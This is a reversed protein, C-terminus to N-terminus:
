RHLSPTHLYMFADIRAYISLDRGRRTISPRIDYCAKYGTEQLYCRKGFNAGLAFTGARFTRKSCWDCGKTSNLTSLLLAQPPGCEGIQYAPQSSASITSWWPRCRAPTSSCWELSTSNHISFRSIILGPSGPAALGPRPTSFSARISHIETQSGIRGLEFCAVFM